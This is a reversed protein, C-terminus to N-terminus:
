LEPPPRLFYESLCIKQFPINDTVVVPIDIVYESFGSQLNPESIDVIYDFVFHSIDESSQASVCSLEESKETIEKKVQEFFGSAAYGLYFFGLLLAIFFSSFYGIFV